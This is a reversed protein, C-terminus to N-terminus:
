KKTWEKATKNFESRKNKYVEAITENLPHDTNPDRLLEEFSM